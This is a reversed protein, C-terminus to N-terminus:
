AHLTHGRPEAYDTLEEQKTQHTLWFRAVDRPLAHWYQGAYRSQVYELFEQYHAAPYTDFAPRGDFEMYDPHTLMLAMGGHRVVWDLKERWIGSGKEKMLIFLTSDQPLTYPLDVYGDHDGNGPVHFPFITGMGQPQPEFPDTDFTSADYAIDLRQLWDLNHHMAPSRFGCCNWQRLYHNIRVARNEFVERSSYLKGDHKLGHVGIEFGRSVLQHRLSSSVSYREPVFFLASRLGLKEEISVLRECRDQGRSTDVDHTLVLAFRKNGPWGTWGDPARGARPCVPWAHRCGPLMRRMRMRRLLLQVRRPILPKVVYYTKMLPM